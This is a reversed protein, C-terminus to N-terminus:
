RGTGANRVAFVERLARMLLCKLALIILLGQVTSSTSWDRQSKPMQWEKDGERKRRRKLRM